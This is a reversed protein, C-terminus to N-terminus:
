TLSNEDMRSRLGNIYHSITSSERDHNFNSIIDGICENIYAPEIDPRFMDCAHLFAYQPSNYPPISLKAKQVLGGIREWDSLWQDFGGTIGAVLADYKQRIRVKALPAFHEHLVKLRDLTTHVDRVLHFHKLAIMQGCDVFIQHMAHKKERNDQSTALWVATMVQFLRRDGSDLDAVTKADPDIDAVTAEEILILPKNTQQEPDVHEWIGAYEAIDQRAALWDYWDLSDDLILTARTPSPPPTSTMILLEIVQGPSPRALHNFEFVRLVYSKYREVTTICITFTQFNTGAITM